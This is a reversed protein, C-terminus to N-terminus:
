RILRAEENIVDRKKEQILIKCQSNNGGSMNTGTKAPPAEQSGAKLNRRSALAMKVTPSAKHEVM